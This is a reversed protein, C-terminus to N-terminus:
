IEKYSLVEEIENDPLIQHVDVGARRLDGILNNTVKSLNNSIFLICLRNGASVVSLSSLYLEKSLRHTAVLYFM